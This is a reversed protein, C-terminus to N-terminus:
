SGCGPHRARASASSPLEPGPQQCSPWPSEVRIIRRIGACPAESQPAWAQQGAQPQELSVPVTATVPRSRSVPVMVTVALPRSRSVRVTVTVILMHSAKLWAVTSFADLNGSTVSESASHVIM